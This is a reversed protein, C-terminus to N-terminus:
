APWPQGTLDSGGSRDDAMVRLRALLESRNACNLRQRIRAVHHEVTKASIFLRDGIQRYTLGALVLDAVEQERDSLRGQDRGTVPDAASGPARGPGGTRGQLMRACDLLTTMAKRDSTRIAAQGALRAGDWHLGIGHLGRAAGEVRVPDVTGRLVEVWSQAATALVAAYRSHGAAATLAAVHRDAEAPQEAIIAAHLNSWHLPAAWLPPDGLRALVTSAEALYPALQALEGLRAAAVALEGLPLLTFLDVPHRIVAERAQEWARRLAPLDSNRRAIGLELGAAFLLDRSELGGVDPGVSGAAGSRGASPGGDDTSAAGDAPEADDRGLVTALRDTAAGCHGRVMAIWAQLLGHRRAMLAAGTRSATARELVRDAIDLEGCHMAVLAALAAPSDPLLVARGAPELLGAARVLTALATTPPESLTERVGRATQTAAGTLLTPPGGTPPERVLRDLDDRDGTALASIAAFALSSTTGSWRYLDAARGHQGRHTLATAAVTAAEARDTPGAAEVLRDALRLASDLHGALAAATAQRATAPGGAAVAAAFLDTALGPDDALAEEAAATLLPVPCGTGGATGLLPRVLPLVPGGRRLQLEALRRWVDAREAPPALSVLARRVIPPLRDDRGLLGAARAAAVTGGGDATHVGRDPGDPSTSAPGTLLRDLMEVPFEVGAAVALLIRRVDGTLEELDPAFAALASEPVEPPPPGAIAASGLTRALRDVSRPIGGTQRHVFSVMAPHPAAGGVRALQTATEAPTFPAPLLAPRDRRLLEALEALAPPRPWPRYALLLRIRGTRVLTCLERLAADHLLHADDVLLAHGALATHDGAAGLLSAARDAWALTGPDVPGAPGTWGDWVPVGAQRYRRRAEALLSSKGYGGPAQIAATLPAHPDTEIADLLARSPEDLVLQPETTTPLSM